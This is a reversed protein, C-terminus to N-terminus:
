RELIGPLEFPMRSFNCPGFDPYSKEPTSASGKASGGLRNAVELVASYPEEM